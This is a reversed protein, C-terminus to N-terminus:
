IRSLWAAGREKDPFLKMPYGPKDISLMLNAIMNVHKKRNVVAMSDIIGDGLQVISKRAEKTMSLEEVPNILMKIKGSKAIIGLQEYLEEIHIKEIHKEKSYVRVISDGNISIRHGITEITKIIANSKM